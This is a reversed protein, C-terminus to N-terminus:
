CWTFKHTYASRWILLILMHIWLILVCNRLAIDYCNCYICVFILNFKFILIPENSFTCYQVLYWTVNVNYHFLQIILRLIDNFDLRKSIQIVFLVLVPFDNSGSYLFSRNEVLFVALIAPCINIIIISFYSIWSTPCEFDVIAIWISTSEDDSQCLFSIQIRRAKISTGAEAHTIARLGLIYSLEVMAIHGNAGCHLYSYVGTWLMYLEEYIVREPSSASLGMGM